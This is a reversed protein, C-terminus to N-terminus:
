NIVSLLAKETRKANEEITVIGRLKQPLPKQPAKGNIFRKMAANLEEVDGPQVLLGNKEHRVAEPLGGISSALVPVGLALAERAAIGSVEKCESPVVFVDTNILIEPVKDHPIAGHLRIIADSGIATKLHDVFDSPGSGYVDLCASTREPFQRFAKILTSLGKEPSLRSIVTFKLPNGESQKTNEIEKSSSQLSRNAYQVIHSAVGHSIVAIKSAAYGNKVIEQQVFQTPAFILSANEAFNRGSSFLVDLIKLSRAVPLRNVLKKKYYEPLKNAFFSNLRHRISWHGKVCQRCKSPEAIGDCIKNGPMLLFGNHCFISYLHATITYPIGMDSAAKGVAVFDWFLGFHVIDPQEERLFMKAWELLPDHVGWGGIVDFVPWNIEIVPIGEVERNKESLGNNSGQETSGGCLVIIQHGMRTWEQALWLTHLEAGGIREPLFTKNVM